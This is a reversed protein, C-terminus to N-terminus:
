QVRIRQGVTLAVDPRHRTSCSCGSSRRTTSAAVADLTDGAQISTSSPAPRARRRRAPRARGRRRPATTVATTRRDADDLRRERARRPRAPGRGDRRRPLRRPAAFARRPPGTGASVLRLRGLGRAEAAGGRRRRRDGTARRQRPLRLHGLALRHRARECPREHVRPRRRGPTAGQAGVGPLLLVAQPM